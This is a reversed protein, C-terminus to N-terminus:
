ADHLIACSLGPAARRCDFAIPGFGIALNRSLRSKFWDGRQQAMQASGDAFPRYKRMQATQAVDRISTFRVNRIAVTSPSDKGAWDL